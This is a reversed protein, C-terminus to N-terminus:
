DKKQNAYDVFCLNIDVEIPVGPVTGTHTYQLMQFNYYFTPPKTGLEALWFDFYCVRNLDYYVYALEQNFYIMPKYGNLEILNCFEIACDTVADGTMDKTRADEFDPIEWDFVVPYTIEYGQIWRLVMEAEERAEQVNLAQSYFYVGIDLGAAEANNINAIFKNDQYIDGKTYGRYGVRLMAFDIGAAKVAHWDIIEQHSSVDIGTKAVLDDSVYALLEGDVTFAEPELINEPVNEAVPIESSGYLIVPPEPIDPLVPEPAPPRTLILVIVAVILVALAFFGAVIAIARNRRRKRSSPFGEKRFTKM